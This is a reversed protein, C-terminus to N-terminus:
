FCFSYVVSVEFNTEVRSRKEGVSHQQMCQLQAQQDKITKDKEILQQELRQLSAKQDKITKKSERVDLSLRGVQSTLKKIEEESHINQKQAKELEKELNATNTTHRTLIERKEKKATTIASNLNLKLSTEDKLWKEEIKLHNSQAEQNALTLEECKSTLDAIREVKDKNANNQCKLMFNIDRESQQAYEKVAKVDSYFVFDHTRM